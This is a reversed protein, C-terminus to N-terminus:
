TAWGPSGPSRTPDRAPRGRRAAADGRARARRAGGERQRRARPRRRRRGRARHREERGRLARRRRRRRERVRPLDGLPGRGPARVALELDDSAVVAAAPFGASSRTPSTRARLPRRGSPGRVLTSLRAGTAPDLGKTLSLVPADGPLARSSTASSAARCPSSSSTPTRSRRTPLDDCRSGASTPRRARLAPEARDRRM